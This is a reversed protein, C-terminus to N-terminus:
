ATVIQQIRLRTLLQRHGQKRRYKKRRRFKFVIIKKARRQEAIQTIVKAEPVFPTGVRFEQGDFVMLVRDLIVQEGAKGPIREVELLQGPFVRYQKSGAQVIAYLIKGEQVGFIIANRIM